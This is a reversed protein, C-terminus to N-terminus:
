RRRDRCRLRAQALVAADWRRLTARSVLRLGARGRAPPTGAPTGAPTRPQPLRGDWQPWCGKSEPRVGCRPCANSIRSARLPDACDGASYRCLEGDHSLMDDCGNGPDVPGFGCSPCQRPDLISRRLQHALLRRSISLAAQGGVERQLSELEREFQERSHEEANRKFLDRKMQMYMEFVDDAIHRALTADHYAASCEPCPIKEADDIRGFSSNSWVWHELDADCVFHRVKVSSCMAGRSPEFHQLCIICQVDNAEISISEQDLIPSEMDDNMGITIEMMTNPNFVAIKSLM